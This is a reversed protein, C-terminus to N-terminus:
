SECPRLIRLVDDPAADVIWALPKADTLRWPGSAVRVLAALHGVTGLQEAIAEALSRVYTGASCEVRIRLLDDRRDLLEVRNLRVLRPALTVPQARRAWWYAPRGRVKVASYQPPTQALTGVFRELVRAVADDSLMPVPARRICLGEADGTDTQEGLRIAAEYVKDHGQLARQQKTAAGVLVVLLGTAMPDLTGAHGVRRLGFKKRVVDVVDHSTMGAPKDVLLLGEAM